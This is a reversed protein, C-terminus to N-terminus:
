SGGEQGSLHGVLRCFARFARGRTRVLDFIACFVSPGAKKVAYQVNGGAYMVAVVPGAGLTRGIEDGTALLFQNMAQMVDAPAEGVSAVAPGEDTFQFGATLGNMSEFRRCVEEPDAGAVPAAGALGHEQEDVAVACDLLLSQWPKQISHQVTSGENQVRFKGTRLRIMEILAKEGRIDGYQAHTVEGDNVCILGRKPAEEISFTMTKRALCAMQLMDMISISALNGSSSAMAHPFLDHNQGTVGSL